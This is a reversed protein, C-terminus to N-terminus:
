KKDSKESGKKRHDQINDEKKGSDKSQKTLVV